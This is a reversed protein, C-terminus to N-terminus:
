HLQNIASYLRKDHGYIDNHFHIIGKDDVWTTFYLIYVPTKKKLKIYKEEGGEITELIKENNWMLDNKLLYDALKLPDEIRICGHSFGRESREFLSHGPTDHLYVDYENPFLFKITGLANETGPNQRFRFNFNQPNVNKWDITEALIAEKSNEGAFMQMHQSELYTSDKQLLPLIEKVAIDKPVNWNPNIVIYELEDNFIPTESAQKGVIVKMNWVERDKEYVHLIFEPINVLIYEDSMKEPVWRWREMNIQLQKIRDEVPVNLAELTRGAVIGDQDLGHREQFHKVGKELVNDFLNGPSLAPIDNTISLRKKLALVSLGTDGKSLKEGKQLITKAWGGKTKIEQYAVLVNKLHHYEKHLPEFEEFPNESTKNSLITELTQGYKIKKPTVYWEDKEPRVSGRWKAQAYKFFSATFLIDLERRLRKQDILRSNGETALRHLQWLNKNHFREVEFGESDMNKIINLYMSAQPLFEGKHSWALRYHRHFYFKIIKNRYPKLDPEKVLFSDIDASDLKEIGVPKKKSLTGKKEKDNDHSCSIVFWLSIIFLLIRFIKM